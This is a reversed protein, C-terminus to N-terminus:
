RRHVPDQDTNCFTEYLAAIAISHLRAPKTDLMDSTRLIGHEMRAKRERFLLLHKLLQPVHTAGAFKLSYSTSLGRTWGTTKFGQFPRCGACTFVYMTGQMAVDQSISAKVWAKPCDEKKVTTAKRWVMLEETGDREEGNEEGFGWSVSSHSLNVWQRFLLDFERFIIPLHRNNAHSPLIQLVGRNYDLGEYRAQAFGSRHRIGFVRHKTRGVSLFPRCPCVLLKGHQQEGVDGSIERFRILHSTPKNGRRLKKEPRCPKSSSYM